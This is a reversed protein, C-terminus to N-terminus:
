PYLGPLGMVMTPDFYDFMTRPHSYCMSKGQTDIWTYFAALSSFGLMSASLDNPPCTASVTHIITQGNIKGHGAQLKRRTSEEQNTIEREAPELYNWDEDWWSLQLGLDKMNQIDYNTGRVRAKKADESYKKSKKVANAIEEESAPTWEDTPLPQIDNLDRSKHFPYTADDPPVEQQLKQKKTRQRAQKPTPTSPSSAPGDSHKRKSSM